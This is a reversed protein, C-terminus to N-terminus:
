ALSLGPAELPVIARGAPLLGRASMAILETRRLM